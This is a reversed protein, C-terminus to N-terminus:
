VPIKTSTFWGVDGYVKINDPDVLIGDVNDDVVIRNTGVYRAYIASPDINYFNTTSITQVEDWNYNNEWFDWTQDDVQSWARELVRQSLELNTALYYSINNYTLPGNLNIRGSYQSFDILGNFAIGLVAWDANIIYPTDVPYGNIYYSVNDLIAGTTRSKGFIYGRQLTNDGHVYFDYIDDKHDVSFIVVDGTPFSKDSFRIWMQVASVKVSDGKQTNVPLTFGRDVFQNFTGKIKWGSHSSTYLYPTSGKYISIPNKAKYDFYLQSSKTYPYVPVGFRTGVETFKTKELVQSALQLDRFIVPHHEQGETAFDLHYVLALQNINVPNGNKDIKPPYIITGDVVEYATDEWDGVILAPDVTGKVRATAFNTFDVLNKNAGNTIYQFSVYSRIPNGATDYYYYKISQQAMDEYDEWGTYFSNDLEAYTLQVPDAYEANLEGYNWEDTVEISDKELPEPYDLNIQISDVEYSKNGEYDEVYRAFYTLPMYDEWYGAVAIDAFFIGYKEYVLYTYNATHSMLTNATTLNNNFIGVTDYLTNIKRNNYAADFGTRYMKGKFTSSGDGGFYLRLSGENSFFKNIGNIPQSSLNSINFGATFKQNATITKTAITTNTGSINISYTLTLNNLKITFYDNTITNVIKALVENSSTGDSEFVGYFSEVPDNLIGFNSFYLYCSRTNWLSNPRFTYYKDEVASELTQLDLLWTSDTTNDSTYLVPLDYDAVQLYNSSTTINSFFAQRWSAFDPYNYNVAYNAFSYDNFATTANLSANTTEPPVVGQGWVFRRKAVELPVSYSYIAFSDLQLPTTKPYAYIGLWDQNKGANSFEEPFNLDSEVFNESIVEEGNVFVTANNEIYKIHILMPRFWEGVYHSQHKNGIVLTLYPGEIYLGDNSAIPGFIRHAEITDSNIRIWMEVTYENYKGRQNLFGYGPFILSPYNISTKIYPTIKTVNSSGYVLPLGYNTAYLTNNDAIYYANLSSAGYPLAPMCEANDFVAINSPLSVPNVGVSTKNFEENWQGFTLGNILFESLGDDTVTIRIVIKINTAYVPPIEFTHAFFRWTESELANISETELVEEPLGSISDVYTYGYSISTAYPTDIFLHFGLAFNKLDTNFTSLLVSSVTEAEIEMTPTTPSNGVIRSVHTDRIPVDPPPTENSATANTLTWQAANEFQRNTETFFSVYDVVDNLMWVALPHESNVKEVYTNSLTAM